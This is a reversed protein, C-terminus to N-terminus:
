HGKTLPDYHANPFDPEVIRTELYFDELEQIIEPHVASLDHSEASDAEIDYLEWDQPKKRNLEQRVAKWKGSRLAVQGGYGAFEWIM